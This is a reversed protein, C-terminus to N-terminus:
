CSAAGPLVRFVALDHSAVDFMIGGVQATMTKGSFMEKVCASSTDGFGAAGAWSWRATITETSEGRNLMGFVFAGGSLPGAYVDTGPPTTIIIILSLPSPSCPSPLPTSHPSPPCTAAATTLHAPPSLHHHSHCRHCHHRCVISLLCSSHSM